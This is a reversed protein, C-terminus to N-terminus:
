KVVKISGEVNGIVIKAIYTGNPLTSMDIASTVNSPQVSIVRQGLTNFIDVQNITEKASLNLMDQVPNPYAVLGKAALENSVKLFVSSNWKFMGGVAPNPPNVGGGNFGGSWGTDADLFACGLHQIADVDIFDPGAQFGNLSYSSGSFGSASGVTMVANTGPIACISGGFITGTNAFDLTWNAGGDTSTWYLGSNDILYGNTADKFSIDGSQATGGFDSLPSQFAVWNLGKDSSRYIRGKNTTFWVTNGDGCTFVQSTYGYEGALPAPINASPVRTWNTGGNTSTYIEYYGGLPDGMCFGNNADFFHVVNAFSDAGSFSADNQRTWTTGGNTTIFIGQVTSADQPFAVAYATTASLGQVMAIGSVTNGINITGTTWTAGGDTTKTFEQVNAASVSGDYAAAWVVNEDVISINRIGRSATAFGTNQVTWQAHSSLVATLLTFLFLLKTKM